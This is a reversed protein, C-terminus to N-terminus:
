QKTLTITSITGTSSESSLTATNGKVCYTISDSGGTSIQHTVTSGSITYTGSETQIEPTLQAVCSCGNSGSCSISSIGTTDNGQLSQQVQACTFTIGQQNLCSAPVNITMSGSLTTNTQYRGDAGYVVTGSADIDTGSIALGSCGMTGMM